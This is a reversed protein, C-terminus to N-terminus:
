SLEVVMAWGQLVELYVMDTQKKMFRPLVTQRWESGNILDVADMWDGYEPFSWIYKARKTITNNPYIPQTSNTSEEGIIMALDADNMDLVNKYFSEWVKEGGRLNGMIIVLSQNPYTEVQNNDNSAIDDSFAPLRVLRHMLSACTFFSLVVRILLDETALM